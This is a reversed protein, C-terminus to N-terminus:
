SEDRGHRSSPRGAEVLAVVRGPGHVGKVMIQGIDASKSPGSHLGIASPLDDRLAAIAAGLTVHIDDSSVVVIHTPALLQARRGDRADMVLSGTEAVGARAMSIALAAQEPASRPLDPQLDAPVTQGIVISAFDRAFAAVWAATAARDPLRVVEGGAARFLAEFDDVPVVGAEHGPVGPRLGGVEGDPVGPRWAGFDGPHEPRDRKAIASRVRELIRTRATV